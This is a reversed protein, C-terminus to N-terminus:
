GIWGRFLSGLNYKEVIGVADKWSIKNTTLTANFLVSGNNIFTLNGTSLNCDNTISCTDSLDIEWNSSLGPCICTDASEEEVITVNWHTTVNSISENSTINAWAFFDHTIDVSGTANVWFTVLESQGSSLSSTTKPNTSNTYFPLAGITTNILGSKTTDAPAEYEWGLRPYDTANDIYWIENTYSDIEEIDWTSFTEISQMQITTKPTAGVTDNLGSINLDYFNNTATGEDQGAFGHPYDGTVINSAYCKTITAYRQRGIFGGLVYTSSSSSYVSCGSSYCNTIISDFDTYTMGMFGGVSFTGSINSNIVFSNNIFCDLGTRGILGGVYEGGAIDADKLGINNIIVDDVYGFLGVYADSRNIYLDSITNNGGDFTGTFKTTINGIPLWGAGSNASSSAIDSYGTDGSGLDNTLIYSASLNDRTENLQAWTSIQYPNGTSGDGGDFPDLSVNITGCDGDLCTVNFTVNFFENQTVNINTTPYVREISITPYGYDVSDEATTSNSRALYSINLSLNNLGYLADPATVNVSWGIDSIYKYEKIFGDGVTFNVDDNDGADTTCTTDTYGGSSCRFYQMGEIGNIEVDVSHNTACSGSDEYVVSIDSGNNYSIRVNRCNFGFNDTICTVKVSDDFLAYSTNVEVSTVSGFVDADSEVCGDFTSITPNNEACSEGWTMECTRNTTNSYEQQIIPAQVGGVTINNIFVQSILEEGLETVNFFISFKEGSVIDLVNETSPNFINPILSYDCALEQYDYHTENTYYGCNNEDSETLNRIQTLYDNQQCVETNIWTSWSSNIISQTCSGNDYSIIAAAGYNYENNHVMIVHNNSIPVMDIAVTQYSNTASRYEETKGVSTGNYTLIGFYNDFDPYDGVYGAVMYHTDNIKELDRYVIADIIDSSSLAVTTGAVTLIKAYSADIGVYVVMYHTDNIKELYSHAYSSPEFELQTGTSISTGDTTLIFAWGDGSGDQYTVIYHTTDIREIMTQLGYDTNFESSITSSLTNGNITLVYAWGDQDTGMSVLIVHTDDIKEMTGGSGQGPSYEFSSGFSINSGDTTAIIAYGDNDLGQYVIIFHTDNIKYVDSPSISASNDFLYITGNNITDGDTTLITAYGYSDEGRYAVFYHTDNLKEIVVDYIGQTSDFITEESVFVNYQAYQLAEFGFFEPVYEVNEGFITETFLGVRQEISSPLEKLDKFEVWETNTYNFCGMHGDEDELCEEIISDIAYKTIFVRSEEVHDSKINFSRIGKIWDKADKHFNHLQYEVILTDNGAAVSTEYDNIMTFNILINDKDEIVIRRENSYFSFNRSNFTWFSDDSITLDTSRLEDVYDRDKVDELLTDEFLGASVLSVFIILLVSSIAFIKVVGIQAIKKKFNMKYGVFNLVM